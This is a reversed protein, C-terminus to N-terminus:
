LFVSEAAQPNREALQAKHQLIASFDKIEQFLNHISFNLPIPVEEKPILLAHILLQKSKLNFVVLSHEQESNKEKIGNFTRLIDKYRKEFDM